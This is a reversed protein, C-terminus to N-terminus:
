ALHHTAYYVIRTESKSPREIAYWTGSRRHPSTPRRCTCTRWARRRLRRLWAAVSRHMHTHMTMTMRMHVQMAPRLMHAHAHCTRTRPTHAYYARPMRIGHAHAPVTHARCAAM